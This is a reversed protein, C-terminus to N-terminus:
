GTLEPLSTRECRPTDDLRERLVALRRELEQTPIEEINPIPGRTSEDVDARLTRVPKGFGRDALWSHDHRRHYAAPM